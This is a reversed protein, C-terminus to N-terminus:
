FNGLLAEIFETLTCDQWLDRPAIQENTLDDGLDIGHTLKYFQEAEIPPQEM